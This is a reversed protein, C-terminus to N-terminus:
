NQIRIDIRELQNCFEIGDILDITPFIDRNSEKVASQNFSSTAIFLGKDARESVTKRFTRIERCGISDTSNKCRFYVRFSIFDIQLTGIGEFGNDTRKTVDMLLFGFKLLFRQCINEFSNRDMGRLRNLTEQKGNEFIIPPNSGNRVKHKGFSVDAGFRAVIEPYLDGCYCFADGCKTLIWYGRKVNKVAGIKRLNTLSWGIRYRMESISDPPHPIDLVSPDLSLVEVVPVPMESRAMPGRHYHNKLVELTAWAIERDSAPFNPKGM